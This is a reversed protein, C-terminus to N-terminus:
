EPAEVFAKVRVTHVRAADNTAISVSREVVGKYKRTELTVKLTATKGPAVTRDSALAATCGCSTSIRRIELEGTGTNTVTFEHVVKQDQQVSGFDFEEPEIQARPGDSAGSGAALAASLALAALAIM